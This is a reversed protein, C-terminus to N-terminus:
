KVAGGTPKQEAPKPITFTFKTGGTCDIAVTGDLQGALTSVLRLGLSTKNELTIGEPIGTGNDAVIFTLVQPDEAATISINGDKKDRFAYKLSNTILENSILGLPIATNIDVYIDRITLDFRIGKNGADYMQFIGRGLAVMYNRLDIHSLDKGRYLHEHVLAMAQVRNQSDKLIEISRPDDIKRIQLNLISTIIQLNNKVRHHIERLLTEKEALSTKIQEALKKRETIDRINCQIVKKDNVMYVNSVFEVAIRRGDATELPLDEYRIYEKRQLEDFNDKSAVIDKFLGIEWLKKGLFQEHSFGLLNILFQNVGVIQGTDADLILIGDQATEFLRRYRTESAHLLKDEALKRETNDRINCQIVKKNNVTYVNSSFEMNIHRGDSTELPLDEYRIYEKRQLEDFDDKNTVIDKFLGIEWLRKGLFQEHSFGLMDILFPNADIIQGTGADIILIGEKATEFLRRYCMESNKLGEEVLRIETVLHQRDLVTKIKELLGDLDIPKIIYGSAGATLSQVANEVSAFGTIMIVSMDPNTQKLPALLQNGTIDPLKVDLLTLSILRGQAAALAEKGTAASEVIYGKKKLILTLSKRVGDDDDVVLICNKESM